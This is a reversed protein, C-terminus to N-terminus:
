TSRWEGDIWEPEGDILPMMQTRWWEDQAPDDSLKEYEAKSNFRVAVVFRGDDAKMVWQDVYGASAGRETQWAQARRAMEDIDGNLRGIMVTGYM